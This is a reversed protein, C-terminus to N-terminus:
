ALLSPHNARLWELLDVRLRKAAELLESATKEDAIGVQDYMGRSRIRSCQALYIATDSHGEGLTHRLSNILHHHHGRGTQQPEYGAAYLAMACLQLAGQYAHIFRADASLGPVGADSLEREVVALLQQM